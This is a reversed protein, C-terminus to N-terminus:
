PRGVRRESHLGPGSSGILLTPIDAKNFFRADSSGHASKHMADIRSHQWRNPMGLKQIMRLVEPLKTKALASVCIMSYNNSIRFTKDRRIEQIFIPKKWNSIRISKSQIAEGHECLRRVDMQLTVNGTSKRIIRIHRHSGYRIV